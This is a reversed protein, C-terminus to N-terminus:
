KKGRNKQKAEIEKVCHEILTRDSDKLGSFEIGADYFIVGDLVSSTKEKIWAVKGPCRVFEDGIYIKLDVPDSMALKKQVVVRIGGTSLDETYTAIPKGKASFIHITYPVQARVARRRNLGDWEGM